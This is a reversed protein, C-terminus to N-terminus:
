ASIEKQRQRYRRAALRSRERRRKRQEPTANWYKARDCERCARNLKNGKKWLADLVHGKPCHTKRANLAPPSTGRRTNEWQTVLELHLPNCCRTNKCVEHDLQAVKRGEHSMPLPEILWAYLLRHVKEHRGQYWTLGYKPDLSGIWNWCGTVRDIEIKGFVRKLLKTSLHEVTLYKM